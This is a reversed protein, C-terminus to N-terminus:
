TFRWQWWWDTYEEWIISSCSVRRRLWITRLWFQVANWVTQSACVCVCCAHLLNVRPQMRIERLTIPFPQLSLPFFCSCQLFFEWCGNWKYIVHQKTHAAHASMSNWSRYLEGWLGKLKLTLIKYCNRHRKRNHVDTNRHTHPTTRNLDKETGCRQVCINTRKQYEGCFYWLVHCRRAITTHAARSFVLQAHNFSYAFFPIETFRPGRMVAFPACVCVCALLLRAALTWMWAVLFIACLAVSITYM